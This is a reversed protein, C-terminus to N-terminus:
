VNPKFKKGICAQCLWYNECSWCMGYQTNALDEGCDCCHWKKEEGTCEKEWRLVSPKCHKCFARSRKQIETLAANFGYAEHKKCTVGDEAMQSIVVYSKGKYKEEGFPWPEDKKKFLEEGVAQMNEM